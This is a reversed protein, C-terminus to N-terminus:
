YQGGTYMYIQRQVTVLEAQKFSMRVIALGLSVATGLRVRAERDHVPRTSSSQAKKRLKSAVTKCGRESFFCDGLVKAPGATQPTSEQDRASLIRLPFRRDHYYM